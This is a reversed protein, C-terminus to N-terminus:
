TTGAHYTMVNKLMNAAPKVAEVIEIESMLKTLPKSFAEGLSEYASESSASYHNIVYAALYLEDFLNERDFTM